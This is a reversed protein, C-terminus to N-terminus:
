VLSSKRDWLSDKGDQLHLRERALEVAFGCAWCPFQLAIPCHICGNGNGAECRAATDLISRAAERDVMEIPEM